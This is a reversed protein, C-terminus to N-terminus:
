IRTYLDNTIYNYLKDAIIKYGKTNPHLGNVYSKNNGQRKMEIASEHPLTSVHQWIDDGEDKIEDFLTSEPKFFTKSFLKSSQPEFANCQLLPIKHYECYKQVLLKYNLTKHEFYSTDLLNSIYYKKWYAEFPSHANKYFREKNEILDTSWFIIGNEDQIQYPFFDAAERLSSSWGIIVLTEKNIIGKEVYDKMFSENGGAAYDMFHQQFQHNAGGCIAYVEYPINFKDALWRTYSHTIRLDYLARPAGAYGSTDSHYDIKSLIENELPQDWGEGVTWSDGFAIIKNFKM